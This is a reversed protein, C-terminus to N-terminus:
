ELGGNLINNFACWAETETVVRTAEIWEHYELEGEQETLTAINVQILYTHKSLRKFIFQVLKRIIALEDRTSFENYNM